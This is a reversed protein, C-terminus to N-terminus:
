PKLDACVLGEEPACAPGLRCGGNVCPPNCDAGRSCPRGTNVCTDQVCLCERNTRCTKAPEYFCVNASTEGYRGCIPVTECQQDEGCLRGAPFLCLGFGTCQAPVVETACDFDQVCTCLGTNHGERKACQRGGGNCDPDESCTASTLVVVDQCAYGNPCLGADDECDIGCFREPGTEQPANPDFATSILCYDRPGPCDEDSCDRCHTTNPSPYCREGVCRSGLACAANSRCRNPACAGLEEDPERECIATLACQADDTCGATCQGELCVFGPSCQVDSGCSSNTICGGTNQDCHTGNACDVNSVCIPNRQCQGARNCFSASPCAEDIKCLCVGEACAFGVGCETDETCAPPETRSQPCGLVFLLLLAPTAGWGIAKRTRIRDVYSARAGGLLM